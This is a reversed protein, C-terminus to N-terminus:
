QRVRKYVACAGDPTSYIQKWQDAFQRVVPLTYRESGIVDRGVILVSVPVDDLLQQAKLTDKEFPPMVSKLGTRLYVWHPTGAGVVDDPEAQQRLYTVCEDFDQHIKNYYFLRYDVPRHQRDLYAIRYHETAYVKIFSRIEMILATSLTALTLYTGVNAWRSSLAFRIKDRVTLLFLILSLVLLPVIPMLYRPYQEPFPALCLGALYILGYLPVTWQGRFMQVAFGGLVFLGFTLLIFFVSWSFILRRTKGDGFVVKLWEEWEGSWASLTEGINVAITISNRALRRLMEGPSTVGAEPTFPDRLAVNRAYSVNYFMYPARQYSYAPNRYAHSSEVSAIYSQWCLVPILVLAARVAAQGFQRRLVSELVWAAFAAMGITRLAYSVVGFLYALFAHARNEQNRSCSIFLVTALSFLIEPFCLDSVFYVHSSFLCLLTALFAYHLSLYRKFFRHIIYIYVIFSVFASGRLWEGVTTPDETGLILQYAAIIVPLLPPYQVADIEGPENLLKYGKGQALSTGLIYYVGGDWRLDIPGKLRPLWTVVALALLVLLLATNSKLWGPLLAAVNKSGVKESEAPASPQLSENM